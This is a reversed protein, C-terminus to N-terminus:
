FIYSIGLNLLKTELSKGTDKSILRYSTVWNPYLFIRALNVDPQTSMIFNNVLRTDDASLANMAQAEAELPSSGSWVWGSGDRYPTWKLLLAKAQAELLKKKTEPDSANKIADTLENAKKKAEFIGIFYKAVAIVLIVGLGILLLQILIVPIGLFEAIKKM